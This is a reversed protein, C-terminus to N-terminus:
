VTKIFTHCKNRERINYKWHSVLSVGAKYKVVSMVCHIDCMNTMPNFSPVYISELTVLNFIVGCHVLNNASKSRTSNYSFSHACFM